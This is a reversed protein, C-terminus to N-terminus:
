LIERYVGITQETVRQLSLKELNIQSRQRMEALKLPDNLLGLLEIALLDPRQPPILIGAKGKEIMEPIGGVDAVVIACGCERAESIVLGAPEAHSPLTFIESALLYSRPDDIHGCFTINEPVLLRALARYEQEFPGSGVIYLHASPVEKVVIAHARILDDVGKRPHLGGVFTIAPHCLAQVKVDGTFRPSGITGNLVTRIKKSSIGRKIMSNRVADSVAIVRDGVNMLTASKQFENHVTTVLKFKFFPKLSAAFLASAVMHGHVIDPNLSKFVAAIGTIATFLGLLSRKQKVLIHAVGHSLLLKEFDGGGSCVFVDHGQAAQTCALDVVACVHGNAKNIHNLIHVIRLSNTLSIKGWGIM